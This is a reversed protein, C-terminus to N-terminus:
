QSCAAAARRTAAAHLQHLVDGLNVARLLEHGTKAAASAPMCPRKLGHLVRNAREGTTAHPQECCDTM